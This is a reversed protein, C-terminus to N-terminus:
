ERCNVRLKECIRALNLQVVGLSNRVGEMAELRDKESQKLDSQLQTIDQTNAEVTNKLNAYGSVMAIITLIVPWSSTLWGPVPISKQELAM